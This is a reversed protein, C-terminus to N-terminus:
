PNDCRGRLKEAIRCFARGTQLASYRDKPSKAERARLVWPQMIESNAPIIPNVSYQILDDYAAGVASSRM